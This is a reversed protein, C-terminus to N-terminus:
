DGRRWAGKGRLYQRPHAPVLLGDAEKRVVGVYFDIEVAADPVAFLAGFTEVNFSELFCEGVTTISRTVTEQQVM